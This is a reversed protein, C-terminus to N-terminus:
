CDEFPQLIKSIRWTLGLHSPICSDLDRTIPIPRQLSLDWVTWSMSTRRNPARLLGAFILIKGIREEDSQGEEFKSFLVWEILVPKNTVSDTYIGLQHNPSFTRISQIQSSDLILEREKLDATEMEQWLAFELRKMAAHAGLDEYEEQSEKAFEEIAKLSTQTQHSELIYKLSLQTMYQQYSAPAAECMQKIDKILQEDIFRRPVYDCLDDM